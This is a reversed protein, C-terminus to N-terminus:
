LSIISLIESGHKYIIALKAQDSEVMFFHMLFYAKVLKDVYIVECHWVVVKRM